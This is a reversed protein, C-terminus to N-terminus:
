GLAAPDIERGTIFNYSDVILQLTVEAEENSQPTFLMVLGDPVEERDVWPHFVAWGAESRRTDIRRTTLREVSRCRFTSAGTRTSTSGVAECARGVPLPVHLSGDTHFHSFERGRLILEPQALTVEEVLWLGRGGPLSVVTPRNEVGPLAFARARLTEDVEPVPDVDVQIHPVGATTFPRPGDRVPLMAGQSSLEGPEATGCAGTLLALAALGALCAM